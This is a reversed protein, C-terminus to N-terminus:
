STLAICVYLINSIDSVYFMDYSVNFVSYIGYIAGKYCVTILCEFENHVCMFWILFCIIAYVCM